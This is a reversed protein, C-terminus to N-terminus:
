GNSWWPLGSAVTEQCFFLCFLLVQRMSKYPLNSVHVDLCQARHRLELERYIAAATKHLIIIIIESVAEIIRSFYCDLVCHGSSFSTAPDERDVALLSASDGCGAVCLWLVHLSLVLCVCLRVSLSRSSCLLDAHFSSTTSLALQGSCGEQEDVSSLRHSALRISTAGDLSNDQVPDHVCVPLYPSGHHGTQM